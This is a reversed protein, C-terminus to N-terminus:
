SSGAPDFLDAMGSPAHPGVFMQEVAGMGTATAGEFVLSATALGQIHMWQPATDELTALDYVESEVKLAGQDYGHGWAPHTYGLGAMYFHRQIRFNATAETGAGSMNLSIEDIRRSLRDELDQTYRVNIGQGWGYVNFGKSQLFTRIIKTSWDNTTLGPIIMVPQGDGHPLSDLIHKAPIINVLESVGLPELFLRHIKPLKISATDM